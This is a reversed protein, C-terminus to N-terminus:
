TFVNRQSEEECTHEVGISLTIRDSRQSCQEQEEFRTQSQNRKLQCNQYHMRNTHTQM